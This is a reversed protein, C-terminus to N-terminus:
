IKLPFPLVSDISNCNSLIAILRDIGMAVGSCKPFTNFIKYYNSDVKHPIVNKEKLQAEKKFFEQIKIPNTEESYCNALEIGRCYLEWRESYQLYTQETPLQNKEVNKPEKDKALCDVFSPYDMLVVPHEKPLAPEVCQVFIINYLEELTWKEFPNDVPENIGIRRAQEAARLWPTDKNITDKFWSSFRGGAYKEFADDVTIKIFPPRLDCFSNETKPLLFLFLDETIKISDIYNANMTYYELMTFEPSHMNGCSEVNRYCKSLQYCNVKHDAIIKKIYVEPSPVLYLLTKKNSFPAIYETKFVELCSEPILSTSLAPTDLELYDSFFTRIDHMIRARFQLRELDM